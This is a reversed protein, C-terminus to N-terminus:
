FGTVEYLSVGDKVILRGNIIRYDVGARPYVPVVLPTPRVDVEALFVGTSPVLYLVGGGYFNARSIKEKARAIIVDKECSSPTSCMSSPITSTSKEWQLRVIGNEIYISEGGQTDAPVVVEDGIGVPIKAKTTTPAFELLFTNYELRTTAVTTSAVSTGVSGVIVKKITFENPVLFAQADTVIRPEVILTKYWPYDGERAVHVAYSGPALNDVYFTHNLFGSVGIENGNLSVVADSPGVSIYVGGTEVLSFGNQFRYGTAYLIAFPLCVVFLFVFVALYARRTNKSLPKLDKPM